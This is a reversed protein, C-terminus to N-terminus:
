EPFHGTVYEDPDRVDFVYLTRTADSRYRELTARDIREVGFKRAVSEAASKAWRLGAGSVAPARATNGSDCALGALHWGMTGNRLAVVKNPM